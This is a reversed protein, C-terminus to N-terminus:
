KYGGYPKKKGGGDYNAYRARVAAEAKEKSEHHSVVKGTDSRVVVWDEGQKKAKWPM